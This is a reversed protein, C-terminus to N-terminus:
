RHVQLGRPRLRVRLPHARLRPQRSRAPHPHRLDAAHGPQLPALHQRRRRLRRRRGRLNKPDRNRWMKPRPLDHVGSFAGWLRGKVQPDFVVWYTTNRWRTPVGNTASVWSAGGDRSHFAGIDTYSIVLHRPDFPDFHVGYNTTVDLGRTTWTNEGVRVSTVTEWTAGGDLTRYTRFLDTAYCINPDTPAVGLSWPTDFFVDQGGEPARSEIWSPLLNKSPRNSEQHVITWTRGGDTTKSIGNFTNERGEGGIRMGRFGAYAVRGDGPAAAIAQYRGSTPTQAVRWTAGGDESVQIEGRQSTGYLISHGAFLGVSVRTVGAPLAAVEKWTSGDLRHVRRTGVALLSDPGAELAVIREGPFERARSWTAGRDASSYLLSADAGRRPGFAVWIRGGNEVAIGSISRGAPFSADATTLSYEAHDGNQHEVTNQKPDPFIMSWTRGTDQSRWLAENGAYIVRANRPDFAFTDVVSRLNFMRWSQAGDLTIYAGTMDCHEVVIRPDHPSITPSIM